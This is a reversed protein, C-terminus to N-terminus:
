RREYRTRQYPMGATAKADAAAPAPAVSEVAVWRSADLAPFAADGDVDADIQTIWAREALELARAYIEAGGIVFVEPEGACAQLAAALSTFTEAGDLRLAPNRTIVLSRRGPLPRGISDWTKRGMLIPHGMTTRKFFALDEPLRWPLTGARGIIGNRARAVILTVRPAAGPSTGDKQSQVSSV